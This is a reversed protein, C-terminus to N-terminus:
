KIPYVSTSVDLANSKLLDVTADHSLEFSDWKDFTQRYMIHSKYFDANLNGNDDTVRDYLDSLSGDGVKIVETAYLPNQGFDLSDLTGESMAKFFTALDNIPNYEINQDTIVVYDGVYEIIRGDEVGNEVIRENTRTHIACGEVDCIEGTVFDRNDSM